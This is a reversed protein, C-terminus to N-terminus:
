SDAIHYRAKDLPTPFQGALVDNFQAAASNLQKQSLKRQRYLLRPYARGRGISSFELWM